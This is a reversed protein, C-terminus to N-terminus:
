RTRVHKHTRDHPADEHTHEGADMVAPVLVMRGSRVGREALVSLALERVRETTSKLIAVEMGSQHDLPVHMNAVSLDHHDHFLSSLRRALNRSGHEYVYVVAAVCDPAENEELLAQHIGARAVDRMAESRGTYGRAVILRDLEGILEDDITITVRQM